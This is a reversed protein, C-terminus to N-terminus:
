GNHTVVGFLFIAVIMLWFIKNHQQAEDMGWSKGGEQTSRL